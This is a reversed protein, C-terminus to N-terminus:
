GKVSDPVKKAKFCTLPSYKNKLHESKTSHQIICLGILQIVLTLWCENMDGGLWGSMVAFSSIVSLLGLLKRLYTINDEDEEAVSVSYKACM